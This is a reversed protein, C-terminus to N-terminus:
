VQGGAKRKGRACFSDSDTVRLHEFGYCMLSGFLMSSSEDCKYCCACDRCLVVERKPMEGWGYVTGSDTETAYPTLAGDPMEILYWSM